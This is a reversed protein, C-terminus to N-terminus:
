ENAVTDCRAGGRMHEKGVSKCIYYVVGGLVAFVAVAVVVVVAIGGPTDVVAQIGTAGAAAAGSTRTAEPTNM